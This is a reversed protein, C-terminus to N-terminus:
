DGETRGVQRMREKARCLLRTVAPRTIGMMQAVEADTREGVDDDLYKLECVERQKASLRSLLDGIQNAQRPSEDLAEDPPEWGYFEDLAELSEPPTSFAAQMERVRRVDQVTWGLNSALEDDTAWRQYRQCLEEQAREYDAVKKRDSRRVHLGHRNGATRKIEGAIHKSALTSLRFGRKWDFRDVANILGINGQQILDNLSHDCYSAYKRAISVVLRRNSEILRNGAEPDGEDKRKALEIEEEYSLLPAKSIENLYAKLSDFDAKCESSYDESDDGEFLTSPPHSCDSMHADHRKPTEAM